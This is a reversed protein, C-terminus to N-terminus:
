LGEGLDRVRERLIVASEDALPNASAFSAHQNQCTEIYGWDMESANPDRGQGLMFISGVIIACVILGALAPRIALRYGHPPTVLFTRGIGRLWDRITNGAAAPAEPREQSALRTRLRTEFGAPASARDLSRVLHSTNELERVLSACQTCTSLHAQASELKDEGLTRNVYDGALKSFQKCNM